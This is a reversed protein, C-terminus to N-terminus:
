HCFSVMDELEKIRTTLKLKEAQAEDALKEQAKLM